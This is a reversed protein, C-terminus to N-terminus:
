KLRYDENNSKNCILVRESFNYAKPEFHCGEPAKAATKVFSLGIIGLFMLIIMLVIPVCTQKKTHVPFEKHPFRPYPKLPEQLIEMARDANIKQLELEHERELLMRSHAERKTRFGSAYFCKGSVWFRYYWKNNKMKYVNTFKKPKKM